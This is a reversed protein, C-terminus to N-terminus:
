AGTARVMYIRTDVTNRWLQFELSRLGKLLSGCHAARLLAPSLTTFGSQYYLVYNM